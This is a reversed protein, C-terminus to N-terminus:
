KTELSSEIEKVLKSGMNMLNEKIKESSYEFKESLRESIMDLYKHAQETNNGYHIDMIRNFIENGSEGQGKKNRLDAIELHTNLRESFYSNDFKEKVKPNKRLAMHRFEHMLTEIGQPSNWQDYTVVIDKKDLGPKTKKRVGGGLFNEDFILDPRFEVLNQILGKYIDPNDQWVKRNPDIYTGKSGGESPIKHFNITDGAIVPSYQGRISIKGGKSPPSSIDKSLKEDMIQFVPNVDYISKVLADAEKRKFLENLFEYNREDSLEHIGSADKLQIPKPAQTKDVKYKDEAM